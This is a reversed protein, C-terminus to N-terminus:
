ARRRRSQLPGPSPHEVEYVRLQANAEDADMQRQTPDAPLRDAVDNLMVALGDGLDKWRPSRRSAYALVAAAAGTVIAARPHTKALRALGGVAAVPLVIGVSAMKAGAETQSAYSRDKLTFAAATWSPMAAGPEYWVGFENDLLDKDATQLISPDLLRSLRATPEDSRGGPARRADIRAFRAEAEPISAEAADVFRLRDVYMALVERANTLDHNNRGAVEPLHELVEEVLDPKGYLRATGVLVADMLASAKGGPRANYLVDRILTNADVVVPWHHEERLRASRATSGGLVAVDTTVLASRKGPPHTEM